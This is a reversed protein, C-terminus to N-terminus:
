FFDAEILQVDLVALELQVEVARRAQVQLQHHQEEIGLLLPDAVHHLMGVTVLSGLNRRFGGEHAEAQTGVSGAVGLDLRQHKAVAVQLRRLHQATRLVQNDGVM